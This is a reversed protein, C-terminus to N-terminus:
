VVSHGLAVPKCPETEIGFVLVGRCVHRKETGTYTVIHVVPLVFIHFLYCLWDSKDVSFLDPTEGKKPKLAGLEQFLLRYATPVLCLLPLIPFFIGQRGERRPPESTLDCWGAYM